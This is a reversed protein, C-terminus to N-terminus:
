AGIRPPHFLQCQNDHHYPHLQLATHNSTRRFSFAIARLDSCKLIKQPDVTNNKAGLQGGHWTWASEISYLLLQQHLCFLAQLNAYTSQQTRTKKGKKKIQSKSPILVTQTLLRTKCRPSFHSIKKKSCHMHTLILGTSKHYWRLAPHLPQACPPISDGAKNNM